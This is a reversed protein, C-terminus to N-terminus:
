GSPAGGTRWHGCEGWEVDVCELTTCAQTGNRPATLQLLRKANTGGRHQWSGSLALKGVGLLGACRTPIATVFVSSDAVDPRADDGTRNRNSNAFRPSKGEAYKIGSSIGIGLFLVSYAVVVGIAVPITPKIRYTSSADATMSEATM